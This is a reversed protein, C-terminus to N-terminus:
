DENGNGDLRLDAILRVEVPHDTGLTATARVSRTLGAIPEYEPHRAAGLHAAWDAIAARQVVAPASSSTTGVLIRNTAVCWTLPPLEATDASKLLEGLTQHAQIQWIRQDDSTVTATDTM